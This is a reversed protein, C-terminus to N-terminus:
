ISYMERDVENLYNIGNILRIFSVAPKNPISVLSSILVIGEVLVRSGRSPDNTARPKQDRDGYRGCDRFLCLDM